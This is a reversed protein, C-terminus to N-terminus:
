TYQVATYQVTSVQVNDEGPPTPPTDLQLLQLLVPDSPQQVHCLIVDADPGRADGWLQESCVFQSNTLMAEAMVAWLVYDTLWCQKLWLQVCCMILWCRKLWLQECCMILWCQKLWLQECCMILWDANSLGYSSVAHLCFWYRKPRWQQCFVFLSDTLIVKAMVAQLMWVSFWDADSQGCFQECDSYSQGYSSAARLCFILRCWKPWLVAWLIFLKPWLQKYCAFLFDTLMMKAMPLHSVTHLCYVLVADNWGYSSVSSDCCWKPWFQECCVFLLDTLIVTAMVALLVCVAFDTLMTEAM